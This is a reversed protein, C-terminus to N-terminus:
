LWGRERAKRAAEIRNSTGLKSIASHLYNRVTGRALGEAEAIATSDLGAETRLTVEIAGLGSEFLTRALPVADAADDIVIREARFTRSQASLSSVCLLSFLFLVTSFRRM